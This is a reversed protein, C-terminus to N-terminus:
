IVVPFMRVKDTTQWSKIFKGKMWSTVTINNTSVMVLQSLLSLKQMMIIQETTQWCKIM